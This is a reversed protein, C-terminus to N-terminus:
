MSRSAVERGREFWIAHPRAGVNHDLAYGSAVFLPSPEPNQDGVFHQRISLYDGWRKNSDTYGQVTTAHAPTGTLLGVAHSAANSGIGYSVGVEDTVINVALSPFGVAADRAWIDASGIQRFATRDIRVATYFAFNGRSAITPECTQSISAERPLVETNREIRLTDAVASSGLNPRPEVEFPDAVEEGEPISPEPPREHDEHEQAPPMEGDRGPEVDEVTVDVPFSADSEDSQIPANWRQDNNM